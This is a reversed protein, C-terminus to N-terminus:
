LKETFIFSDQFFLSFFSAERTLNKTIVGGMIQNGVTVGNAESVGQKGAAMGPAAPVRLPTVCLVTPPPSVPCLIFRSLCALM